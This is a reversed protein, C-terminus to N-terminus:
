ITFPCRSIIILRNVNKYVITSLVVFLWLKQFICVFLVINEMLELIAWPLNDTSLCGRRVLIDQGYPVNSLLTWFIVEAFFRRDLANLSITGNLLVGNFKEYHCKLVCLILIYRYQNFCICSIPFVVTWSFGKVIAGVAQLYILERKM